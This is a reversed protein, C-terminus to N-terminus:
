LMYLLHNLIIIFCYNLEYFLVITLSMSYDLEYFLVITLNM